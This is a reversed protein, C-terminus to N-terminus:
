EAHLCANAQQVGTGADIKPVTLFKEMGTVLIAVRDVKSQGDAKLSCSEMGNCFSHTTLPSHHNIPRELLKVTRADRLTSRPLSLDELPSGLAQSVTGVVFLARRAFLRVVHIDLTSM